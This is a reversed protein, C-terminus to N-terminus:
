KCDSCMGELRSFVKRSICTSVSNFFRVIIPFVKDGFEPRKRSFTIANSSQPKNKDKKKMCLYCKVSRIVNINIICIVFCFNIKYTSTLKTVRNLM